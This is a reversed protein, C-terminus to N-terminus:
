PKAAPVKLSAVLLEDMVLSKRQRIQRLSKQDEGQNLMASNHQSIDKRAREVVVPMTPKDWQSIQHVEDVYYVQGDSTACATWGTPLVNTTPVADEAKKLDQGCASCFVDVSRCTQGCSCTSDPNRSSGCSSCFVFGPGLTEGCFKCAVDDYTESM